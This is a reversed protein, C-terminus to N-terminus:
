PAICRHGFNHQDVGGVRFFGANRHHIAAPKFLEVDFDGAPVRKFAIDIESLYGPDFRGQLGSKNLIAAVAMAEQGEAFDMGIVIADRDGVAFGQHALIDLIRFLFFLAPTATAAAVAIATAIPRPSTGAFAIGTFIAGMGVSGLIVIMTGVMIVVVIVRVIMVIFFMMIMGLVRASVRAQGVTKVAIMARFLGSVDGRVVLASFGRLDHRKGGAM